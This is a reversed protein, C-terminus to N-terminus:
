KKKPIDCRSLFDNFCDNVANSLCEMYNDYSYVRGFRNSTGIATCRSLTDNNKGLISFDIAVKGRYLDKEVVEFQLLKGSIKYDFAPSSSTSLGFIAFVKPFNTMIFSSIDTKTTVWYILRNDWTHPGHDTWIITDKKQSRCDVITDLKYTRGAFNPLNRPSYNGSDDTSRWAMEIDKLHACGAFLFLSALVAIPISITRM